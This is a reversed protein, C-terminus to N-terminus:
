AQTRTNTHGVDWQGGAWTSAGTVGTVTVMCLQAVRLATDLGDAGPALFASFQHAQLAM